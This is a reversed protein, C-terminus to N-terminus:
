RHHRLNLSDSTKAAVALIQGFVDRVGEAANVRRNTTRSQKVNEAAFNLMKIRAVRKLIRSGDILCESEFKLRLNKGWALTRVSYFFFHAICM